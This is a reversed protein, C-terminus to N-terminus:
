KFNLIEITKRLSSKALTYIKVFNWGYLHRVDSIKDIGHVVSVVYSNHHIWESVNKSLM